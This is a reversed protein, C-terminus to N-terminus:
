FKGTDLEDYYSYGKECAGESIVYSKPCVTEIPNGAKLCIDGVSVEGSGCSTKLPPQGPKATAKCAIENEIVANIGVTIDVDPSLMAEIIDAM